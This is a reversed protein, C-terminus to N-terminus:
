GLLEKKFKNLWVRTAKEFLSPLPFRQFTKEVVKDFQGETILRYNM